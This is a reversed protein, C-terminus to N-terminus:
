NESQRFDKTTIVGDTNRDMIAVWGDARSLFETLSVQGDKDLDNFRLTMGMTGDKKITGFRLGFAEQNEARAADFAVYDAADLFGDSNEDFTAHLDARHATAEAVTVKGDGNLDWKSFFHDNLDSQALVPTSLISILATTILTTRM